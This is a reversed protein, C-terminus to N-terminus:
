ESVRNIKKTDEEGPSQAELKTKAKELEREARAKEDLLKEQVAKESTLLEQVKELEEQLAPLNTLNESLKKNRQEFTEVKRLLSHKENEMEKKYNEFLTENRQKNINILNNAKTESKRSLLKQEALREKLLAISQDKPKQSGDLNTTNEKHFQIADQISDKLTEPTGPQNLIRLVDQILQDM